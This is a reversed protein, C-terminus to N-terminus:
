LLGIIKDLDINKDVSLGNILEDFNEEKNIQMDVIKEELTNAAVLKYVSVKREQGIRYARDIAQQEVFPNWWPDYIIVDQASVLNLGVGGAKISILFIGETASEFRTVLEVRNQTQGDLYFIARKYSETKALETEIIRLMSTYNSFILIKHGSEFLNDVLIKLAELKCSETIHEVNTAEDLLLPHCCCERLLTLGKLVVPAAFAKLNM